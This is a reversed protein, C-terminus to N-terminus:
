KNGKPKFTWTFVFEAVVDGEEDVGKSTVDIVQGEGTAISLAIAEKIKEGDDCKFNVKTRVKKLFSAKMNLVLM